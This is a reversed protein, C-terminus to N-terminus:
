SVSQVEDPRALPPASLVRIESDAAPHPMQGLLRTLSITDLPLVRPEPPRGPRRRARAAQATAAEVAALESHDAHLPRSWGKSSRPTTPPPPTTPVPPSDAGAPLEHALQRLLRHFEGHDIVVVLYRSIKDFFNSCYM